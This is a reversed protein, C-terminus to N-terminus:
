KEHGKVPDAVQQGRSRSSTDKLAAAVVDTFLRSLTTFQVCEAAEPPFNDGAATVVDIAPKRSVRCRAPCTRSM